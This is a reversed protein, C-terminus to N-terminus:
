ASRRRILRRQNIVEVDQDADIPPFRTLFVEITEEDTIRLLENWSLDTVYEDEYADTSKTYLKECIDHAAWNQWEGQWIGAVRYYTEGKNIMKCCMTCRYPKRAKRHYHGGRDM